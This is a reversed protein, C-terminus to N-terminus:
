YTRGLYVTTLILGNHIALYREVNVNTLSTLVLPFYTYM